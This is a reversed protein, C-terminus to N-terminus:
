AAYIFLHVNINFNVFPTQNNKITVRHKTCQACYGPLTYLKGRQANLNSM